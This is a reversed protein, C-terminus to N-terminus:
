PDVLTVDHGDATLQARIGALHAEDRTEVLLDVDVRRLPVASLLRQHTM